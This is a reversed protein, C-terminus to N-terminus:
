YRENSKIINGFSDTIILTDIKGPIAKNEISIYCYGKSKRFNFDEFELEGLTTYFPIKISQKKKLNNIIKYEYESFEGDVFNINKYLEIGFYENFKIYGLFEIRPLIFYWRLWFWLCILIILIIIKKM